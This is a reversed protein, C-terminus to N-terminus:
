MNMPKRDSETPNQRIKKLNEITKKLNENNKNGARAIQIAGWAGLFRVQGSGRPAKRKTKILNEITENVNEFTEKQIRNSETPNQSIKL